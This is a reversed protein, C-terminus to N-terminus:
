KGCKHLNLVAESYLKLYRADNHLISKWKTAHYFVKTKNNYLNDINMWPLLREKSNAQTIGPLMIPKTGNSICLLTSPVAVELFAEHRFFVSAIEIFDLVKERPIYNIDSYGYVARQPAGTFNLIRQQCTMFPEKKKEALRKIENYSTVYYERHEPKM